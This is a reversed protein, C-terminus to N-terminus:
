ELVKLHTALKILEWEALPETPVVDGPPDVPRLFRNWVKVHVGDWTVLRVHDGDTSLVVPCFAVRDGPKFEHPM